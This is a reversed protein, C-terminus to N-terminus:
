RMADALLGGLSANVKWHLPRLNDFTGLGGLACPQIHDIEWGYPSLRDGHDRRHIELGYCDRRILYPNKGPIPFAKEWVTAATADLYDGAFNEDSNSFGLSGFLGPM